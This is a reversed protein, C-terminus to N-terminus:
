LPIDNENEKRIDFLVFAEMAEYEPLGLHDYMSATARNRDEARQWFERSDSGPFPAPDKQSQHKYIAYRKQQLEQPSMPIAMHIDEPDWEQWAGRYLLVQTKDFWQEDKIRRLSGFIADLCVRHTGHPDSLDGAAYIQHPKVKQLLNTVIDIDASSLPKKKVTGTEYFPLELFHINEKPVGCYRAASRAETARILGKIKQITNSDHQGSTKGKIEREVAAELTAVADSGTVNFLKCFEAAFNAFRLADDDWVAYNGSTQYAVHVDHGQEVLRILTGGMSIVDDDPHPSFVIVRKPFVSTDIHPNVEPNIHGHSVGFNYRTPRRTTIGGVEHKAISDSTATSSASSAANPKGGPWGTITSKLYSFVKINLEHAPGHLRVLQSLGNNHYDEVTLKLIPKKKLQSLWIVARRQFRETWNLQVDTSHGLLTWPAVNRMLRAGAAVDLVAEANPHDQLFSATVDEDVPGEIAKKIISAKHESFAMLIVRRAACISAVGMTIATEPVADLSFFDGAADARTVRDIYILRTLSKRASGPENFGIHGTRGIGLLQLDIGGFKAMLAEYEECHKEVQDRPVEGSPVHINERPIDIHKFLHEDMYRHYSQLADHKMPYYEDLNFTVVDKFSLGEEKHMRVLEAYVGKPTSGTALGLVVPKKTSTRIVQAIQGAVYKNADESARFINTPIKEKKQLTKSVNLHGAHPSPLIPVSM